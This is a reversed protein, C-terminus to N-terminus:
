FLLCCTSSQINRYPRPKNKEGKPKNRPGGLAAGLENLGESGSLQVQSSRIIASSLEGGNGDNQEEEPGASGYQPYEELILVEPIPESIYGDETM